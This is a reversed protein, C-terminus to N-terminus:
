IQDLSKRFFNTTQFSKAQLRGTLRIYGTEGFQAPECLVPALCFSYSIPCVASIHWKDWSMPRMLDIQPYAPYGTSRPYAWM